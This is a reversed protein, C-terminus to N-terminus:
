PICVLTCMCTHTISLRKKQSRSDVSVFSMPPKGGTGAYFSSPSTLEELDTLFDNENESSVNLRERSCVYVCM